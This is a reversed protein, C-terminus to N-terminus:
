ASIQMASFVSYCQDEHQSKRLVPQTTKLLTNRDNPIAKFDHVNLM